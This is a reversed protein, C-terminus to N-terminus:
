CPPFAFKTYTVYWGSFCQCLNELSTSQLILKDVQEPVKLAIEPNFDRGSCVATLILSILKKIEEDYMGTLKHQVRNYVMLARENRVEQKAGPEDTAENFIDNEDAKLKRSPGQPYAAVRALEAAHEPDSDIDAKFSTM